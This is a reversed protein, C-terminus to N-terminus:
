KWFGFKIKKIYFKRSLRNDLTPHEWDKESPTWERRRVIDQRISDTPLQRLAAIFLYILNGNQHNM